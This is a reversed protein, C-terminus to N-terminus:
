TSAPAAKTPTVLLTDCPLCMVLRKAVSGIFIEHVPGRGHTGTVVLDVDNEHVYECLLRDPPGYELVTQPLRGKLASLNSAALFERYAQAAEEQFQGTYPEDYAHFVDHEANPFARLAAEFAQRSPQSFDTTTVVHHYPKRGRRRVVLVPMPSNGLLKEVTSGLVLRGLPEYRAVGTVILDAGSGVAVRLIAEVPDGHEIVVPVNPLM